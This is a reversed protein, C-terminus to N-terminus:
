RRALDLVQDGLIARLQDLGRTTASRVAGSDKDLLAATQEVSQDEWFRMVLVARYVPSVQALADLLVMRADPDGSVGRPIDLLTGAPTERSSRKRRSDVFSRVLVRRVFAHAAEPSKLRHWKAYAKTLATQVLDEAEHWDGCM